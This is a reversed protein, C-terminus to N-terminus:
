LMVLTLTSWLFARIDRLNQRFNILRLDINSPSYNPRDEPNTVLDYGFWGAWSCLITLFNFNQKCCTWIHYKWFLSYCLHLYVSKEKGTRMKKNKSIWMFSLNKNQQLHLNWVMIMSDACSMKAMTACICFTHIYLFYPHLYFHLSVNLSNAGHMHSLFLFRM